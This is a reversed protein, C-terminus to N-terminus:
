DVRNFREGIAEALEQKHDFDAPLKVRPFSMLREFAKSREDAYTDLNSVCTTDMRTMANLINANCVFFHGNNNAVAEDISIDDNDYKMSDLESEMFYSPVNEATSM